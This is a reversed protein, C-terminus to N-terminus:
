DQPIDLTLTAPYLTRTDSRHRAERLLTGLQPEVMGQFVVRGNAEVVVPRSFDVLDRNLFLTFRRIRDTHVAIRNPGIIEAQMGAYVAGAIFEDRGDILNETFAAIPDTTDIRVWYFPTLHTADRVLSVKQPMFERTRGDFWTM